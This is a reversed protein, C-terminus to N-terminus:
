TFVVYGVSLVCLTSLIALVTIYSSNSSVLPVILLRLDFFSLWVIVLAFIVFPYVITLLVNCM